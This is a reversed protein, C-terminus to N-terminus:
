RDSVTSLVEACVHSARAIKTEYTGVKDLVVQMLGLGQATALVFLGQDRPLYHRM